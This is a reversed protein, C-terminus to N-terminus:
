CADGGSCEAFCTETEHVRVSYLSVDVPLLDKINSAVMIAMNEATPNASMIILRQRDGNTAKPINGLFPDDGRLVLAHDLSGIVTNLIKKLDKFDIVMGSKDLGGTITVEWKYSHGHLHSCKGDYDMLRHATETRYTKTVRM